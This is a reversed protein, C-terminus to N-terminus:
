IHILSLWGTAMAIPADSFRDALLRRQLEINDAHTVLPFDATNSPSSSAGNGLMNPVVICWDAPDLAMGPGIMFANQEHTGGFRTPFLILNDKAENLAGWVAYRCRADKLIGGNALPLDTTFDDVRM